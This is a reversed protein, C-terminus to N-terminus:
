MGKMLASVQTVFFPNGKTKEVIIEALDQLEEGSSGTMDSLISNVAPSPLPPLLITRLIDQKTATEIFSSITERNEIEDNRVAFFFFLPVETLQLIDSIVHISGDDSWQLDDLFFLLMTNSIENSVFKIWSCVASQLRLSTETSTLREPVPLESFLAKLGPIMRESLIAVNELGISTEILKELEVERQIRSIETFM